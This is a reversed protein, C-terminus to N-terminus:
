KTYSNYIRSYTRLNKKINYQNIMEEGDFSELICKITDIEISTYIKNNISITIIRKCLNNKHYIKTSARRM